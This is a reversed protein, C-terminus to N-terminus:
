LSISEISVATFPQRHGKLVRVNSKAKYRLVRIKSSRSQKVINANVKAGDIFPKGFIPKDNEVFLVKDFVISDGVNGNIKECYITKGVEAKVQKGGTLIIAYMKNGGINESSLYCCQM